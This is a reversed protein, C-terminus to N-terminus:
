FTKLIRDFIIVMDEAIKASTFQTEILKRNNEGMEQRLASNSILKELSETLKESSGAPIFFCNKRDELIEQLAGVPTVILPLGHSMAELVSMPLGESYSPLVFIDSRAWLDEKEKGYIVKLIINSM